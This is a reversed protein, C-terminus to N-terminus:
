HSPRSKSVGGTAAPDVIFIPMALYSALQRTLIIEIEKQAV